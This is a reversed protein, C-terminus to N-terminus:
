RERRWRPTNKEEKLEVLRSHRPEWNTCITPVSANKLRGDRNQHRARAFQRHKDMITWFVTPIAHSIHRYGYITMQLLDTAM